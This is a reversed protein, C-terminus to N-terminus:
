AKGHGHRYVASGTLILHEELDALSCKDVSRKIDSALRERAIMQELVELAKHVVQSKSPLNLKKQISDLLCEDRQSIAVAGM